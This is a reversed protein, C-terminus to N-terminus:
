APIGSHTAVIELYRVRRLADALRRTLDRDVRAKGLREREASVRARATRLISWARDWEATWVEVTMTEGPNM